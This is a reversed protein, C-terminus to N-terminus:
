WVFQVVSQVGQQDTIVGTAAASTLVLPRFGAPLKVRGRVTGDIRILDWTASDQAWTDIPSLDERKVMLLGGPGALTPGVIARYKSRPHRRMARESPGPLGADDISRTTRFVVTDVDAVSPERRTVDFRLRTQVSGDPTLVDVHVGDQHTVAIRGEPAVAFTRQTSFFPLGEIGNKLKTLQASRIEAVAERVTGDADLRHISVSRSGNRMTSANLVRFSIVLGSSDSALSLPAPHFSQAGGVQLINLPYRVIYTGETTFLNLGRADVVYLTDRLIAIGVPRRFEGPGDGMGGFRRTETGDPCFVVVEHLVSDVVYVGSPDLAIGSVRVFGPEGGDLSLATRPIIMPATDLETASILTAAPGEVPGPIEVPRTQGCAGSLCAILLIATDHCISM